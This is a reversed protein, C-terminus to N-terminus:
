QFSKFPFQGRYAQLFGKIDIRKRNEWQVLDLSLMTGDGCHVRLYSKHDTELAGPSKVGMSPSESSELIKLRKGDLIAEAIPWPQLARIKCQIRSAPQNWDIPSESKDLKPAMTVQSQDQPTLQYNGSELLTMAEVLADAGLGSLKQLLTESTDSLSIGISKQLVIDGADMKRVMKQITVGTIEDGNEIARQVPAAGRYKPLLSAHVNVCFLQPTELVSEKLIQGFAVVIIVDPNALKLRSLGEDSNINDTEFLEFGRESAWQAVATGRIAQGRGVAKPTQSVVLSPNLGKAVLHELIVKAIPPSGM